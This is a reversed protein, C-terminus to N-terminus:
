SDRIEVYWNCLLSLSLICIVGIFTIAFTILSLFLNIAHTLYLYFPKSSLGPNQSHTHIGSRKCVFLFVLRVFLCTYCSAINFYHTPNWFSSMQWNKLKCLTHVYALPIYVWSTHMKGAECALSSEGYYCTNHLHCKPSFSPGIEMFYANLAKWMKKSAVHNILYWINLYTVHQNRSNINETLSSFFFM